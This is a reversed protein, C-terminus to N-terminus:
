FPELAISTNLSQAVRPLSELDNPITLDFQPVSTALRHYADFQFAWTDSDGHEGFGNAILRQLAKTHSLPKAVIQRTAERKLYCLSRITLSQDNMPVTPEAEFRIPLLDDTVFARGNEALYRILTSKGAGSEAIFAIVGDHNAVASAHLILRGLVASFIPAMQRLQWSREIPTAYKAPLWCMQAELDVAGELGGPGTVSRTSASKQVAAMSSWTGGAAGPPGSTSDRTGGSSARPNLLSDVFEAQIEADFFGNTELHPLVADVLFAVGGITYRNM